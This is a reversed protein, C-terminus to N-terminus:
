VLAPVLLPGTASRCVKGAANGAPFMRAEAAPETWDPDMGRFLRATRRTQICTSTDLLLEPPTEHIELGDGDSRGDAAQESEAAGNCGRGILRGLFLAETDRAGALVIAAGRGM